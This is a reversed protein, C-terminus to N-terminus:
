KFRGRLEEAIQETVIEKTTEYNDEGLDFWQARANKNFRPNFDRGVDEYITKGYETNMNVLSVENGNRMIANKSETYGTRFPTTEAQEITGLIGDPGGHLYNFNLQKCDLLTEELLASKKFDVTIKM